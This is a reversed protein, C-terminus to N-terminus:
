NQLGGTNRLFSKVPRAIPIVATGVLVFLGIAYDVAAIQSHLAYSEPMDPAPRCEVIDFLFRNNCSWELWIVRKKWGPKVIPRV